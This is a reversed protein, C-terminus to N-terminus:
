DVAKIIVYAGDEKRVLQPTGDLNRYFYIARDDLEPPYYNIGLVPHYKLWDAGSQSTVCCRAGKVALEVGVAFEIYSALEAKTPKINM